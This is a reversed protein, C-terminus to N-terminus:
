TGSHEVFLLLDIDIDLSCFERITSLIFCLAKKM